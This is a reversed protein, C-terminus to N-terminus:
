VRVLGPARLGLFEVAGPILEAGCGTIFGVFEILETGAPGARPILGIDPIVGNGSIVGGGPIVGIDPILGGGPIM